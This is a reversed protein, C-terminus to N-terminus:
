PSTRDNLFVKLRAELESVTKQLGDRYKQSREYRFRDFFTMWRTCLSYLILVFIIGFRTTLVDVPLHQLDRMIGYLTFGIGPIVFIIRLLVSFGFLAMDEFPSLQPLKEIRDLIGKIKRIRKETRGQSLSAWWDALKPLVVVDIWKKFFPALVFLVLTIGLTAQWPM